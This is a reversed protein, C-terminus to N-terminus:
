KTKVAQKQAKKIPSAASALGAAKEPDVCDEAKCWRVFASKLHAVTVADRRKSYLRVYQDQFREPLMQSVQNPRIRVASDPDHKSWFNVADMPNQDKSGYDLTRVQVVVSDADLSLRSRVEDPVLAVVAKAIGGADRPSFYRRTCAPQTQEVFKYLRRHEIADLVLQASRLGLEESLAVAGLIDDTLRTYAVMDHIAQSMRVRCGDAGPLTVFPEALILAETIMHDVIGVTKHQYARRHLSNRTHYMDYLSSAEKDRPCIQLDGDVDIVRLYLMLRKYDFSNSIGLARADRSFYDWRDVDIGNRKNAVIEYLFGKERPRGVYPWGNDFASYSSSTSMEAAPTSSPRLPGYIQETIFEIDRECLGRKAFAEAVHQHTELMYRFMAISADEHHWHEHPAVAPIFQGDFTHSFPGHGLDHCLGALKVCLVDLDTIDLEPQRRRLSEVLEGALYCVGVSHEFRNHTAGPFVWYTAGLQKLRRLRQFQPTDIVLACLPDLEIHGHVPDNFVVSSKAPVPARLSSPGRRQAPPMGNSESAAPLTRRKAAAEEAAAEASKTASM